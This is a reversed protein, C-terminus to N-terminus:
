SETELLEEVPVTKSKSRNIALPLTTIVEDQQLILDSM